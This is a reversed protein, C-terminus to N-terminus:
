IPILLNEETRIPILDQVRNSQMAIVCYVLARMRIIAYKYLHIDDTMTMARGCGTTLQDISHRRVWAM